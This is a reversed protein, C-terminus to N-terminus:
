ANLLYKEQYNYQIRGFYSMLASDGPAGSVGMYPLGRSVNQAVSLYAYNIDSVRLDFNYGSISTGSTKLTSSGAMVSVSHKGAIKFDYSLLNDFQLTRGSAMGQTVKAT